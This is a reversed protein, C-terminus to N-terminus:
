TATIENAGAGLTGFSASATGNAVSVTTLYDGNDFFSVFGTTVVDGKPDTVSAGFTVPQGQSSTAPGSVTTTTKTLGNIMVALGNGATYETAALDPQGDGNFDGTVVSTVDTVAAYPGGSAPHIDTRDTGGNILVQV